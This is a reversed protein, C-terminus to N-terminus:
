KIEVLSANLETNTVALLEVTPIMRDNEEGVTSAIRAALQGRRRHPYYRDENHSIMHFFHDRYSYLAQRAADSIDAM